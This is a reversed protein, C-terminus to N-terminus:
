AALREGIPTESCPTVEITVHALHLNSPLLDRYHDPPRPTATVVGIIAAWAGPAVSWVHLDFIRNDADAEVAERIPERVSSPAQRDLLKGSTERMLQWSWRIVLAAGLLGMLPDMWAMGLYKGSLLAAIALVSTMADALVHLYASRLNLDQHGRHHHHDHDDDRAHSHSHGHHHDDHGAGLILASVGNVALGAIEVAIAWDFAIEVPDVLRAVGEWAMTLAFVTLLIAGAFGGLANVKGTGFAYRPDAARRRAYVYAFVAIGLATAHSGMHLGDALLAVSGFAIGAAVEVVMTALTLAFVILTRTEGARRREQDFTHSHRWPATSHTHM